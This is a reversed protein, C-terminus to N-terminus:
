SSLFATPCTSNESSDRMWYSPRFRTQRRRLSRYVSAQVISNLQHPPPERGKQAPTVFVTRSKSLFTVAFSYILLSKLGTAIRNKLRCKGLPRPITCCSPARGWVALTVLLKMVCFPISTNSQGAKNGSMDGMSCKQFISLRRTYARTLGGSFNAWSQCAIISFYSLIGCLHM